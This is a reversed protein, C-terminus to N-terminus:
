SDLSRLFTVLDEDSFGLDVDPLSGEYTRSDDISSFRPEYATVRAGDISQLRGQADRTGDGTAVVRGGVLRGAEEADAVHVLNIAQGLDDRIRFRNAKLDVAELRGSASAETPALTEPASGIEWAQPDLDRPDMSWLRGEHGIRRLSVGTAGLASFSKVVSAAAEGILRDAWPPADNRTLGDFLDEFRDAVVEHTEEPLDVTNPDGIEIDLKTSGKRVGTLRIETARGLSVPTRGPGSRDDIQRGIRTVLEQLSAALAALQTFSIEGSPMDLGDFKLEYSKGTMRHGERSRLFALTREGM